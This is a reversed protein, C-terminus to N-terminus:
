YLSVNTTIVEQTFDLPNLYVVNDLDVVDPASAENARDADSNYLISHFRLFM